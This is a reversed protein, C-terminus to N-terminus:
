ISWQGYESHDSLTINLDIVTGFIHGGETHTAEEEILETLLNEINESPHLILDENLEPLEVISVTPNLLLNQHIFQGYTLFSSCTILAIINLIKRKM